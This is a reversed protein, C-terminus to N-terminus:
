STLKAVPSITAHSTEFNGQLEATSKTGCTAKKDIKWVLLKRVSGDEARPQWPTEFVSAKEHPVQIHWLAM